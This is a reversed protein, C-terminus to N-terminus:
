EEQDEYGKPNKRYVRFPLADTTTLCPCTRSSLNRVIALEM